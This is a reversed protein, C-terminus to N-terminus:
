YLFLQEAVFKRTIKTVDSLEETEYSEVTFQLESDEGTGMTCTSGHVVLSVPVVTGHVVYSGFVFNVIKNVFNKASSSSVSYTIYM